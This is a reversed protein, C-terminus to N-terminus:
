CSGVEYQTPVYEKTYKDFYRAVKKNFVKNRENIYTVPENSDDKAKRKKKGLSVTLKSRFWPLILQVYEQNIKSSVRDLADESPKHDGYALTDAGRYLDESATLGKSSPGALALSQNTANAAVLTGPALGMASEKARQYQLLDPKTTKINRNYKKFADDEADVIDAQESPVPNLLKSHFSSDAKAKQEDMKAQWRENEEISWEWNKKREMDVGDEEAEAKLRLTQALKKQKELRALEKATVASKQHDAIL